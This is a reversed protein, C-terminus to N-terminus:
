MSDLEGVKMTGDRSIHSHAHTYRTYTYVETKVQMYAHKFM